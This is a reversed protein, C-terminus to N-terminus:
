QGKLYRNPQWGRRHLDEEYGAPDFLVYDGKLVRPSGLARLADLNSQSIDDRNEKDIRGRLPLCIGCKPCAWEIQERYADLDHSWCDHTVPLGDPGDLVMSMAGAVECFWFGKPNISSCWQTQLWCQDIIEWMRTKDTIADQIAVLAPQHECRTNHQNNNIYGFTEAILTAYKSRGYDLGTWLGRNRKDPVSQKIIACLLSFEQHMLPEGGIVGVVKTRNLKDHPSKAIFEAGAECAQEFQDLPMFFPERAHSLMRTCNSCARNCRNTVDIQLGWQYGPALM